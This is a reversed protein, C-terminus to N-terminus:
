VVSCIKLLKFGQSVKRGERKEQVKQTSDESNVREESLPTPPTVPQCNSTTKLSNDEPLTQPSSGATQFSIM